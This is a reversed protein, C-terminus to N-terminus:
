LRFIRSKGKKDKTVNRTDFVVKAHELILEIPVESHDTLIVICDSEKISNESMEVSQLTKDGITISSVFPDHYSIKVGEKKLIKVIELAPSERVDNVDRKYTIGYILINAEQFNEKRVINKIRDVIYRPMKQNIRESLEIFDSTIGYHKAKWLLYHPDVPICHGGVGPGPYFANFGYPKTEAAQIVEWIDINMAECIMTLENIFSINIFRYCNEMLKTIEAAEPTSVPVVQDFISEYLQKSKAMCEQTVGSLVKPIKYVPFSKNGPDIREPSYALFFDKGVKLGNNELLPLLVERTTGPYTSSELVILQGTQIRFSLEQGVSQLYSLDPTQHSTLPTPVCIIIADVSRVAEYDGTVILGQTAMAKQIDSDQIDTLYSRGKELLRVKRQDTDIGIVEFGKEILLLALPLGVYGLGIVGIKQFQNGEFERTRM